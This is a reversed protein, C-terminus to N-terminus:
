RCVLCRAEPNELLTTQQVGLRLLSKVTECTDRSGQEVNGNSEHAQDVSIALPELRPPTHVGAFRIAVLSEARMDDQTM